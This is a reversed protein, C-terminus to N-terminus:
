SDPASTIYTFLFLYKSYQYAVVPNVQQKENNNNFSFTVEEGHLDFDLADRGAKKRYFSM